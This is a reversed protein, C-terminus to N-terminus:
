CSAPERVAKVIAIAGPHVAMIGSSSISTVELSEFEIECLLLLRLGRPSLQSFPALYSAVPIEIKRFWTTIFHVSINALSSSRAGRHAASGPPVWGLSLVRLLHERHVLVSKRKHDM